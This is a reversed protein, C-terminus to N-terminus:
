HGRQDVAIRRRKTEEKIGLRAEVRRICRAGKSQLQSECSKSSAMTCMSDGLRLVAMELLLRHPATLTLPLHSCHGDRETSVVAGSLQLQVRLRHLLQLLLVGLQRRLVALDNTRPIDWGGNTRRFPTRRTACIPSSSLISSESRNMSCRCTRPFFTISSPYMGTARCYAFNPAGADSRGAIQRIM